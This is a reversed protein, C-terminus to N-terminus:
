SRVGLLCVYQSGCFFGFHIKILALKAILGGPQCMNWRYALTHTNGARFNKRHAEINIINANYADQWEGNGLSDPSTKAHENKCNPLVDKNANMFDAQLNMVEHNKLILYVSGGADEVRQALIALLHICAIDHGGQDLIDCIQVCISEGGIWKPDDPKSDPDM